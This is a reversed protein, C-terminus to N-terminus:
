GMVGRKMLIQVAPLSDGHIDTRSLRIGKETKVYDFLFASPISVDWEKGSADKVKKEGEGAAGVLDAYLHAQGMMTWGTETEFCVLLGPYHLNTTFPGYIQQIAKFSADGGHVTNGDAQNLVFDDTLWDSVTTDWARKDIITTTYDEMFKMAPHSRTEDDWTGHHIFASKTHYSM